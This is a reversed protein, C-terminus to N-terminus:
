FGDIKDPCHPEPVQVVTAMSGTLPYAAPVDAARVPVFRLRQLLGAAKWILIGAPWPALTRRQEAYDNAQWAFRRM